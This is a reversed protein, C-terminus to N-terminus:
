ANPLGGEWDDWAARTSIWREQQHDWEYDFRNMVRELEDLDIRFECAVADDMSGDTWALRDAIEKMEDPLLVRYDEM